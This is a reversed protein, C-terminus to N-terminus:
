PHHAWDIYPEQEESNKTWAEMMQADREDAEKAEKEFGGKRYCRAAEAYWGEKNCANGAAKWAQKEDAGLAIDFIAVAEYDGEKKAHNRKKKLLGTRGTRVYCEAADKSKRSETYGNGAKKWAKVEGMGLAISCEAMTYYDGDARATNRKLKLEKRTPGTDPEPKKLRLILLLERGANRFFRGRQGAADKQALANAM